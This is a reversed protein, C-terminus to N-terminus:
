SFILLDTIISSSLFFTIGMKTGVLIRFVGVTTISKPNKTQKSLVKLHVIVIFTYM